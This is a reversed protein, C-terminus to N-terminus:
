YKFEGNCHLWESQKYGPACSNSQNWSGISYTTPAETQYDIGDVNIKDVMLNRDEYPPKYSDNTFKIKIQNPNVKVPSYYTYKVFRRLSPNGRVGFAELVVQDNVILKMNPYGNNAKTGAAYIKIINVIPTPSPQPVSTSSPIIPINTPTPSPTNTPIIPTPTLTPQPTAVVINCGTFSSLFSSTQSLVAVQSQNNYSINIDGNAIATFSITAVKGIGQKPSIPEVGLAITIVGDNIAGQRLVVPLFDGKTISNVKLVTKDYNITLDVASTIEAKTDLILDVNFSEGIRTAIMLPSMSLVPGSAELADKEQIKVPNKILSLTYFIILLFIVSSIISVFFSLITIEKKEDEM